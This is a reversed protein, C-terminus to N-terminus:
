RLPHCTPPKSFRRMEFKTQGTAGNEVMQLASSVSFPSIFLNDNGQGQAVQATLDFAFSNNAAVLKQQDAESAFMIQRGALFALFAFGVTRSIKSFPIFNMVSKDCLM